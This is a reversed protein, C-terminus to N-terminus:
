EPFVPWDIDSAKSTDIRMLAVRYKRWSALATIEKDSASGDNVADQRWEIESDAVAKLQIKKADANAILEEHTPPPLDVWAPRGGIAGLMKRLPPSQKWYTSLEEDTVDILDVPLGIDYSGDDIMNQAYFTKVSASFKAKM